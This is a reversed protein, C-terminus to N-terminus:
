VRQGKSTVLENANPPHQHEPHDWPRNCPEGLAWGTLAWSGRRAPLLVYDSVLIEGTQPNM